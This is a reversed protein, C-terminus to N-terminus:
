IRFAVSISVSSLDFSYDETVDFIQYLGNNHKAFEDVVDPSFQADHHRYNYSVIFMLNDYRFGAFVTKGIGDGEFIHLTHGTYGIRPSFRDSVLERIVNVGAVLGMDEGFEFEYSLGLGYGFNRYSNKIGEDFNKKCFAYNIVPGIYLTKFTRIPLSVNLHGGGSYVYALETGTPIELGFAFTPRIRKDQAIASSSSIVTFLAMLWSVHKRKM